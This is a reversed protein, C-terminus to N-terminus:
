AFLPLETLGALWCVGRETPEINAHVVQPAASDPELFYVGVISCAEREAEWVAVVAVATETQTEAPTAYSFIQATHQREDVGRWAALYAKQAVAEPIVGAAQAGPAHLPAGAFVLATLTAGVLAASRSLLPM